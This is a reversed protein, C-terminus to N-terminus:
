ISPGSPLMNGEPKTLDRKYTPEQKDKISLYKKELGQVGAKLTKSPSNFSFTGEQIRKMTEEEQEFQALIKSPVVKPVPM